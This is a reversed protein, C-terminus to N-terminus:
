RVEPPPLDVRVPEGHLPTLTDVSPGRAILTEVDSGDPAMTYLINRAGPHPNHVAIRTGDPSWSARLRPCYGAARGKFCGGTYSPDSIVNKLDSGDINIVYLQDNQSRSADVFLFQQANPSLSFDIPWGQIYQSLDAIPQHDSGDYNASHLLFPMSPQQDDAIGPERGIYYLREYSSSWVPQSVYAGLGRSEAVVHWTETELDVTTIAHRDLWFAIRRGDSHWTIYSIFSALFPYPPSLETQGPGDYATIRVAPTSDSEIHIYALRSGDHSWAPIHARKLEEPRKIREGAFDMTELHHRTLVDMLLPHRKNYDLYVIRGNPIIRPSYQGDHRNKPISRLDNGDVGIRFIRNHINVVIIAGDDSWRPTRDAGAYALATERLQVAEYQYCAIGPSSALFVFALLTFGLLRLM